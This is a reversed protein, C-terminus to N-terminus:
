SGHIGSYVHDPARDRQKHQRERNRGAVATGLLLVRARGSRSFASPGAALDSHSRHRLPDRHECDEVLAVADDAVDSQVGTLRRPPLVDLHLQAGALRGRRPLRLLQGAGEDLDVDL